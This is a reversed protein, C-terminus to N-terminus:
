QKMLGSYLAAHQKASSEWTFHQGMCRLQIKEWVKPKTRYLDLARTITEGLQWSDPDSFLFGTGTGDQLTEPTIDVITDALGGTARAIPLSGYRMAYLQTLGCPESRSPVLLIDSAAIARHAKGEDYGFYAAVSRPHRGCAWDIASELNYDGKGIIAFQAGTSIMYDINPLILDIGKIDNLRSVVCVLPANPEQNLGVEEQFVKKNYAKPKKLNKASFPTRIYSDKAPNWVLEDVGNLIGKLDAARTRLIGDLDWGGEKTKIEEAYKPSVTVIKDAYALGGKLFNIQGFFEAGDLHFAERPFWIEGLLTKPFVGQYALNHITVVTKPKKGQFSFKIYIPAIATQWDHSHVIDFKIGQADGHVGLHAAAWSLAAFRRHSDGHDDYPGGERAFFAPADLLYVPVSGSIDALLVSAPGGGMLDDFTAATDHIRAAKKVAPYAPLLLRVDVGEKNLAMPLSGMADALGGVKVYPFLEAAVFLVKM